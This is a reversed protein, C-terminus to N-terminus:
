GFRQSIWAFRIVDFLLCCYGTNIRFFLCLFFSFFFPIYLSVNRGLGCPLWSPGALAVGCGLGMPNTRWGMKVTELDEVRAM